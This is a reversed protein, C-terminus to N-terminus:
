RAIEGATAIWARFALRAAGRLQDSAREDRAIQWDTAGWKGTPIKVIREYYSDPVHRDNAARRLAVANGWVVLALKGFVGRAWGPLRDPRYEHGEDISDLRFGLVNEPPLGLELIPFNSAVGGDAYHQDRIQHPMYYGPIAMSALVADAIGVDSDRGLAVTRGGELHTVTVTLEMGLVARCSRLPLDPDVGLAQIAGRIWARPRDLPRLGGRGRVRLWGASGGFVEDFDTAAWLRELDSAQAGCVILAATIAGASAGAIREIQGPIVGAQELMAIPEVYALGLVGGGEFALGRVKDLGSM